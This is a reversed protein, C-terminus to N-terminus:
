FRANKTHLFARMKTSLLAFKKIFVRVKLRSHHPPDRFPARDDVLGDRALALRTGWGQVGSWLGWVWFGSDLVGFGLGWVGFGLGWVGCDVNM